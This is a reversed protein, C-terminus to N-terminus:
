SAQAAVAAPADDGVFLQEPDVRLHIVTPLPARIAAELVDLLDDNHTVTVGRAGLARGYAAFDVPGLRIGLPRGPHDREQHMRITGFQQNDYALVVIPAGERVATELESGTMLFGGDGTVCIVPLDPRALKAGIASPIGYGMAGSTSGLFTGPQHWRLYRAPWGAFNGADTVLIGGRDLIPQLHGAVVQQDVFGDRAKGRGPRTAAEHGERAAATAARRAELLDAAAPEARSRALIADLFLGADSVCGITAQVHAGLGEDDVDVHIVRTSLSPLKYRASAFEGFRSGLILLIDADRLRSFPGTPSRLGAWGLYLPHDNPFADPRRWVTFVPIQEREALEVCRESANAALLGGGVVMAPQRATRLEALIRGVLEPDPGPRPAVIPLPATVPVAQGFLDERIAVVSPGPRGSVATRVARATVEALRDAAVPEVAYKAVGGFVTALEVEQFAERHRFETPVQGLVVLLPTSDQRAAHIAIAGHGAGVMRTMM